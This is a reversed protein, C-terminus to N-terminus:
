SLWDSWRRLRSSLYPQRRSQRFECRNFAQLVREDAVLKRPAPANRLVRKLARYSENMEFHSLIDLQEPEFYYRYEVPVLYRDITHLVFKRLTAPDPLNCSGNFISLLGAVGDTDDRAELTLKPHRYKAQELVLLPKGYCLAEFGLTSNRVAVCDAAEILTHPHIDSVVTGCNGIIERLADEKNEADLPHTKVVIRAGPVASLCELLFSVAADNSRFRRAGIVVNTDWDVQCGYMLLFKGSEGLLESRVQAPSVLRQSVMTAKKATYDRLFADARSADDSSSELSRGLLDTTDPSLVGRDLFITGPLWGIESTLLLQGVAECAASVASYPLYRGNWVFVGRPRFRALLAFTSEYWIESLRRAREVTRVVNLTYPYSSKFLDPREFVVRELRYLEDVSERCTFDALGLLSEIAPSPDLYDFDWNDPGDLTVWVPNFGQRFLRAALPRYFKLFYKECIFLVMGSDGM